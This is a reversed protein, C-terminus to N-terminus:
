VRSSTKSRAEARRSFGATPSCPRPCGSVSRRCPNRRRPPQRPGPSTWWSPRMRPAGMQLIRGPRFMAASSTWSTSGPLQGASSISGSGSTTVYYMRGATDFGFVRDDPAVFNRPYLNAFGNTDAGSLLRYVGNADRIEPRDAGGSGGQIYIEGNVLVTSSSYWRARNMNNGRTLSNSSPNFVNSNNNGTNTTNGNVFNDGGSILINGSQPLILQSSCFLDTLTQNPLTVHGAGPGASPDWVDYIFYGTQKGNGDTGYTLVRGDPTLAAHVSILPWNAVPSWTGRVNDAIAPAASAVFFTAALATLSRRTRASSSASRTSRLRSPYAAVSVADPRLTSRM